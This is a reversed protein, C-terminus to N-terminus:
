QLMGGGDRKKRELWGTEDSNRDDETQELTSEANRTDDSDRHEGGIGEPAMTEGIGSCVRLEEEAMTAVAAVDDDTKSLRRWGSSWRLAPIGNKGKTPTEEGGSVM